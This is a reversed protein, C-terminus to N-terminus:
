ATWGLWAGGAGIVALWVAAAVLPMALVVFPRRRFWRISLVLMLAWLALLVGVAWPPAVLGSALYFWLDFAMGAIGVGAAARQVVCIM